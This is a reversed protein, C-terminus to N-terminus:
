TPSPASKWAIEETHWPGTQTDVEVGMGWTMVKESSFGLWPLHSGCSQCETEAAEKGMEERCDVQILKPVAELQGSQRRSPFLSPKTRGVSFSWLASGGLAPEQHASSLLM